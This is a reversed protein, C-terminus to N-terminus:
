TAWAPKLSRSDLDQRSFEIGGTDVEWPGPSDAHATGGMVQGSLDRCEVPRRWAGSAEALGWQDASHVQEERHKPFLRSQTLVLAAGDYSEIESM